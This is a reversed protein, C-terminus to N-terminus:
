QQLAMVAASFTRRLTTRRAVSEMISASCVHSVKTVLWRLSSLSRSATKAFTGHEARKNSAADRAVIANTVLM